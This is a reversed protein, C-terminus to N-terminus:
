ERENKDKKMTIIIVGRKGKEGYLKIAPEEKLINISEIDEQKIIQKIDEFSIDEFVVGDVVILPKGSPTIVNKKDAKEPINDLKTPDPKTCGNLLFSFIFASFLILKKM